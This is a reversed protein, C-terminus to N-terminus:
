RSTVPLLDAQLCCLLKKLIAKLFFLLSSKESEMYIWTLIKMNVEQLWMETQSDTHKTVSLMFFLSDASM